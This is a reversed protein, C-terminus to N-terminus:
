VGVVVTVGVILSVGVLVGVGVTVVVGVGVSVGGGGGKETKLLEVPSTAIKPTDPVV